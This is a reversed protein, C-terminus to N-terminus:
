YDFKNYKQRNWLYKKSNIISLGRSAEQLKDAIVRTNDERIKKNNKTIEYEYTGEVEVEGDPYALGFLDGM